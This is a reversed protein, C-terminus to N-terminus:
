AANSNHHQFNNDDSYKDVDQYVAHWENTIYNPRKPMKRVGNDSIIANENLFQGVGVTMMRMLNRVTNCLSIYDIIHKDKINKANKLRRALNRNKDFIKQPELVGDTVHKDIDTLMQKYNVTGDDNMYFVEFSLGANRRKLKSYYSIWKDYQKLTHFKFRMSLIPIRVMEFIDYGSSINSHQYTKRWQKSFQATKLISSKTIPIPLKVREPNAKLDELFVQIPSKESYYELDPQARGNEDLQWAVIDKRSEYGRMKITNEDLLNKYMYDASGHFSVDSCLNKVEFVFLGTTEELQLDGNEDLIALGKGDVKCKNFKGNFLDNKKFVKRIHKTVLDCVKEYLINIKGSLEDYFTKKALTIKHKEGYKELASDYEGKTRKLLEKDCGYYVGDILWGKGQTYTILEGKETIPKTNWKKANAINRNTSQYARTLFTTDIKDRMLHVVENLEFMGGDTITQHINLAKETYWMGCRCMATINCAMIINSTNFYKSVNVGYITNGILKFLYALSIEGKGKAKKREQIIKYILLLGFNTTTWYHSQEHDDTDIHSHPMNDEFRDRGNAGCIDNKARLEDLDACQFQKPYFIAVILYSNDLIEDRQCAKMENRILDLEDWSISSNILQRTLITTPTNELEVNSMTYTEAKTQIDNNQYKLRFWSPLLDQEDNFEYGDKTEIMLKFGRKTLHKKEYYKLFERLTVKKERFKVIAPNGLYYGLVGAASTYASSIDIDCLTSHLSSTEIMQRNSYCRGGFTKSGIHKNIIEGSKIRDEANKCEQLNKPSATNTYKKLENISSPLRNDLGTHNLLVGEQLDAVTTGTTLKSDLYLHSVGLIGYIMEFMACHKKYAEYVILDGLAYRKFARPKILMALFMNDKMDNLLNKDTTDMKLNEMLENFSIKGQIAGLDAFDIAVRYTEGNITITWKPYWARLRGKSVLRRDQIVQGRRYAEILDENYECQFVRSLDVLLFYAYLKIYCTKLKPSKKGKVFKEAFEASTLDPFRNMEVDFGKHRLHDIIHCPSTPDYEPYHLEKDTVHQEYLPRIKPNIYMSDDNYFIHSLQTTLHLTSQQKIDMVKEILSADFSKDNNMKALDYIDGTGAQKSKHNMIALQFLQNNYNKELSAKTIKEPVGSYKTYETDLNLPLVIHNSEMIRDNKLSEPLLHTLNCSWPLFYKNGDNDIFKSTIDM